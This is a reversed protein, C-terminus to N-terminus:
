YLESNRLQSLFLSKYKEEERGDVVRRYGKFEGRQETGTNVSKYKFHFSSSFVNSACTGTAATFLCMVVNKFESLDFTRESM